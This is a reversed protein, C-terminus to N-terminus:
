CPDWLPLAIMNVPILILVISMSGVRTDRRGPSRWVNKGVKLLILLASERKALM